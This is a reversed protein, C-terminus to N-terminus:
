FDVQLNVTFGLFGLDGMRRASLMGWDPSGTLFPLRTAAWNNIMFWQTVEFIFSPAIRVTHKRVWKEWSLGFNGELNARMATAADHIKLEAPATPNFFNSLIFGDVKEEINYQGLTVAGSLGGLFSWGHGFYFAFDSGIQPGIGWVSNRASFQTKEPQFTGLNNISASTNKNLYKETILMSRLSLYPHVVMTRTLKYLRGVALDWTFYNIHWGLKTELGVGLLTPNWGEEVIKANTVTQLSTPTGKGKITKETDSYFFTPAFTVDWQEHHPLYKGVTLRVGTGWDFKVNQTKNKTFTPNISPIVITACSSIGDQYPRWVLLSPKVFWEQDKNLPFTQVSLPTEAPAPLSPPIYEASGWGSLDALWLSSSLILFGSFSKTM